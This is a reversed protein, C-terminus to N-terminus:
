STPASDLHPDEPAAKHDGLLRAAKSSTASGARFYRMATGVSRHGSMAM